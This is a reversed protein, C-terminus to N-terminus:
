AHHHRDEPEEALDPAADAQSAVRAETESSLESSTAPMDDAPERRSASEALPRTSDTM